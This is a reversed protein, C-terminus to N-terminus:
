GNKKHNANIKRDRAKTWEAEKYTEVLTESLLESVTNISDHKVAAVLVPFIIKHTDTKIVLYQRHIYSQNSKSSANTRFM